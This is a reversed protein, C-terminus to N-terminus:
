IHCDVVSAWSTPPITKLYELTKEVFQDPTMEHDVMAWWGMKGNEVWKGDLTVLAHLYFPACQTLYQRMTQNRDLPWTYYQLMGLDDADRIHKPVQKNQLRSRAADIDDGCEEKLFKEWGGQEVYTDWVKELTLPTTGPVTEALERAYRHLWHERKMLM